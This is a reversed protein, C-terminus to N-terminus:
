KATQLSAALAEAQSLSRWFQPTKLVTTVAQSSSTIFASRVVQNNASGIEFLQEIALLLEADSNISSGSGSVGSGGFVPQLEGRLAAIENQYSRAYSRILRLWKNRTEPSLRSLEAASFRGKHRKMAWLYNMAQSSRNIVRAAYQRVAEDSDRGQRALFARVDTEAPFTNSEVEIREVSPEPTAKTANQQKQRAVAEAVTNIQIKVAPNERVSVLANLLENKRAPTEVIGSIVIPGNSERRVEIQEGLDAKANHLLELVAVELEPSAQIPASKTPKETNAEINSLSINAPNASNNMPAIGPSPSVLPSPNIATATLSPNDGFFGPSLSNLSMVAFSTELMEYEQEGSATKVRLKQELPHYDRARVVLKASIVQGENFPASIETKLRLVSVGDDTKGEEVTEQKNSLSNRWTRYGEISLPHPPEFNNAKLIQELDSAITQQNSLAGDTDSLAAPQINNSNQNKNEGVQAPEGSSESLVVRRLRQNVTDQWLEIKLTEQKVSEQNRATRRKIQFQQYLVPESKSKIEKQRSNGARNLIEEASVITFSGVWLFYVGVLSFILLSATIASLRLSRPSFQRRFNNFKDKNFLFSFASSANRGLGTFFRNILWWWRNLPSAASNESSIKNLKSDFSNWNNPAENLPQLVQNRYDIFSSITAQFKEARARCYWCAALHLRVNESARPALEGDIFCLLDDDAPHRGDQSWETFQDKNM